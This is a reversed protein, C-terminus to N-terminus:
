VLLFDIKKTETDTNLIKVVVKQGIRYTKGRRAGVALHKKDLFEYYDDQIDKFRVLGEVAMDIIEIFMGYHVM